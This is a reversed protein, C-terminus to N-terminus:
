QLRHKVIAFCIDSDLVNVILKSFLFSFILWNFISKPHNVSIIENLVCAILAKVFCRLKKNLPLLWKKCELYWRFSDNGSKYWNSNISVNKWPNFFGSIKFSFPFVIYEKRERDLQPYIVQNIQIKSNEIFIIYSIVLLKLILNDLLSLLLCKVLIFESKPLVKWCCDEFFTFANGPFLLWFHKYM